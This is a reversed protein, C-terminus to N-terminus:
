ESSKKVDQNSLRTTRDLFKPPAESSNEPDSGTVVTRQANSPNVAGMDILSIPLSSAVGSAANSLGGLPGGLVPIAVLIGSLTSKVNDIPNGKLLTSLPLLKILDGLVPASQAAGTLTNLLGSVAGPSTIASTPLTSLLSTLPVGVVPLSGLSSSLSGLLSSLPSDAPSRKNMRRHHTFNFRTMVRQQSAKAHIVKHLPKKHGDLKRSSKLTQHLRAIRSHNHPRRRAVNMADSRGHDKKCGRSVSRSHSGKTPHIWSPKSRIRSAHLSHSRSQLHGSSEICSEKSMSHRPIPLSATFAVIHCSVLMLHLSIQM